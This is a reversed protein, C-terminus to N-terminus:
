RGQELVSWGYVFSQANILPAPATCFGRSSIAFCFLRPLDIFNLGFQTQSEYGTQWEQDPLRSIAANIEPQWGEYVGLRVTLLPTHMIDPVLIAINGEISHILDPDLLGVHIDARDYLEALHIGIENTYENEEPFAILLTSNEALEDALYDILRSNEEDTRLLVRADMVGNSISGIFLILASSVLFLAILSQFKRGSRMITHSGAVMVAGIMCAGLLSPFVFYGVMSSWPLYVVIWAAFWLLGDVLLRQLDLRDKRRIWLPVLLALPVLYLYSRILWGVWRVASDILISLSFAYNSAYGTLEFFRALIISRLLFIIALGIAASLLYSWRLPICGAQAPRIKRWIWDMVLWAVSIPAIIIGTEKVGSAIMVALTMGLLIGLRSGKRPYKEFIAGLVLWISLAFVQVMEGKGLTYYSEFIPPALLFLMGAASALWKIGTRLWLFISLSAVTLGLLITNVAYYGIPQLGFILYQFWWHLWYVPRFRGASLDWIEWNGDTIERATRLNLGDDLLGFEPSSLRPLMILVAFLVPVLWWLHERFHSKQM